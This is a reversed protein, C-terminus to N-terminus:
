APIPVVRRINNYWMKSRTDLTKCYNGCFINKAAAPSKGRRRPHATSGFHGGPLATGSGGGANHAHPAPRTTGRSPASRSPPCAVHWLCAHAPAAAPRPAAIGVGPPRHGYLTATTEKHILPREAGQARTTHTHIEGERTHVILEALSFLRRAPLTGRSRGGRGRTAAAWDESTRATGRVAARTTPTRRPARLAGRPRALAGLVAFSLHGGLTDPRRGRIASRHPARLPAHAGRHAVRRALTPPSRCPARFPPALLSGRRRLPPAPPARAGARRVALYPAPM